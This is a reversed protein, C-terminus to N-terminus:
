CAPNGCPRMAAERAHIEESSAALAANYKLALNLAEALTLRQGNIPAGIIDPGNPWTNPGGDISLDEPQRNPWVAQDANDILTPVQATAFEVTFCSMVLISWLMIYNM